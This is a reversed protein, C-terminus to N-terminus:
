NRKRGGRKGRNRCRSLSPEYEGDEQKSGVEETEGLVVKCYLKACEATNIMHGKKVRKYFDLM